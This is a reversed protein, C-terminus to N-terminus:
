SNVIDFLDQFSDEFYRPQVQNPSSPSSFNEGYKLGSETLAKFKKIKGKSGTRTKEELLNQSVMLKNFAVSSMNSGIKKLLDKASFTIRTSTYDPLINTPLGHNTLANKVLGLYSVDNIKLRESVQNIVSMEMSLQKEPDLFQKGSELDDLRRIIKARLPISYGSVLTLIDNKPLSYCTHTKNQIDKYTVQYKLLGVEGYLEVLMKRTDALVNDHRKGTLKAIEVTSMRFDQSKSFFKTPLQETM